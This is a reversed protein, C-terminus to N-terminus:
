LGDVKKRKPLVKIEYGLSFSFSNRNYNLGGEREISVTGLDMGVRLDLFILGPGLETGVSGGLSLGLPPSVSYPYSATSGDRGNTYAAEGLPLMFYAGGFLSARFPEFPFEYKIFLGPILSMSSYNDRYYTYGNVPVEVDLNLEGSHFVPDDGTVALEAQLLFDRFPHFGVQLATEFTLNNSQNDQYGAGGNPIVYFRLSGGARIGLSLFYEPRSPPASAATETAAGAGNYVNVDVDVNVDPSNAQGLLVTERIVTEPPIQSFIWDVMPPIYDLAEFEDDAVLEDTYIIRGSAAEWLWLQLHYRDETDLYYESTLFYRAGDAYRNAPPLDPTFSAAEPYLTTSVFHSTFGVQSNVQQQVSGTLTETAEPAYQNILPTIAVDGRPLNGSEAAPPGAERPAPSLGTDPPAEGPLLATTEAPDTTQAAGPLSFFGLLIILIHWRRPLLTM